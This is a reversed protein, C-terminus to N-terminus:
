QCLVYGDRLAETFMKREREEGAMNASSGMGSIQTASGNTSAGSKGWIRELRALARMRCEVEESERVGLSASQSPRLMEKCLLSTAARVAERHIPNSPGALSLSSTSTNIQRTM